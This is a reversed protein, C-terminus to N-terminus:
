RDEYLKRGFVEKELNSLRKLIDFNTTGTNAATQPPAASRKPTETARQQQLRQNEKELADIRDIFAEYDKIIQDLFADVEEPKYGRMATKFERELIEKATLQAVTDKM